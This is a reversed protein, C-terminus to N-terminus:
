SRRADGLLERTIEWGELGPDLRTLDEPTRVRHWGPGVSVATRRPAAERLTALAHHDDLDVAASEAALWDPLPASTALGVLGGDTGPLVAVDASGLARHLKGVLLGPLDPADGVLVTVQDAGAAVLADLTLRTRSARHSALPLHALVTGPWTLAELLDRAPDDADLALVPEVLELAAVTEYVDEVMAARLAEDPFGDDGVRPVLVAVLRRTM